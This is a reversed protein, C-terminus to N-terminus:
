ALPPGRLMRVTHSDVRFGGVDELLTHASGMQIHLWCRSASSLVERLELNAIDVVFFLWRQEIWTHHCM